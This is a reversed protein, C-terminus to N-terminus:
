HKKRCTTHNDNTCEYGSPCCNIGDDCCVADKVPCCGYAKGGESRRRVCCTYTDPCFHVSDDCEVSGLEEIFLKFRTLVESKAAKQQLKQSDIKMPILFTTTDPDILTCSEAKPDCTYGDPCCYGNVGCCTGNVYPCCGFGGGVKQCQSGVSCGNTGDMLTAKTEIRHWNLFPVKMLGNMKEETLCEGPKSGCVQGQPCCFASNECCVGSTYPCCGFSGLSDISCCTNRADCTTKDPCILPDLKITLEDIVNLQQAESKVFWKISQTQNSKQQICTAKQIDCKTDQPCCHLHDLCCIAKPIPCCGYSGDKMPCCTNDNPCFSSGDPCVISKLEEVKKFTQQVSKTKTYLATTQDGMICKSDIVDCRYGNPCCHLMDSCCTAEPLPCCAYPGSATKCCTSDTPCTSLGDPCVTNEVVSVSKIVSVNKTKTYFPLSVSGKNCRGDKTDCTYGTPCCHVHDDCCVANLIPCCGYSGDNMQCCTSGEPCESLNDPCVINNGIGPLTAKVHNLQLILCIIASLGLKNM